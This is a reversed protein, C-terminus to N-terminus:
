LLEECGVFDRQDPCESAQLTIRRWQRDLRLKGRNILNEAHLMAAPQISLEISKDYISSIVSPDLQAKLNALLKVSNYVRAVKVRESVLLPTRAHRERLKQLTEALPTAGLIDEEQSRWDDPLARTIWIMGNKGIIVDVNWPLSIYHQPMDKM